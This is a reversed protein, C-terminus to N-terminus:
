QDISILTLAAPNETFIAYVSRFNSARSAEPESNCKTAPYIMLLAPEIVSKNFKDISIQADIPEKANPM